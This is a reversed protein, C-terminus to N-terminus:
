GGGLRKLPKSFIYFLLYAVAIAQLFWYGDMLVLRPITLPTKWIAAAVIAWLFFLRGFGEFERKIGIWLM